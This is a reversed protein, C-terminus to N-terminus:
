WAELNLEEPGVFRCSPLWTVFHFQAFIRMLCASLPSTFILYSSQFLFRARQLLFPFLLYFFHKRYFRSPVPLKCPWFQARVVTDVPVIWTILIVHDYM